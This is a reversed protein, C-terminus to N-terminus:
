AVKASPLPKSAAAARCDEILKQVLYNDEPTVWLPTGNEIADVFHELEKAFQNVGVVGELAVDKDNVRYGTATLVMSGTDTEAEIRLRGADTIM